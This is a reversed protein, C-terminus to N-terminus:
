VVMKRVNEIKRNKIEIVACGLENPSFGRREAFTVSRPDKSYKAQFSGTNIYWRRDPPIFFENGEGQSLYHQKMDNDSFKLILEQLPPAILLKHSDGIAMVLCDGAQEELLRKLKSIMNTLRQEKRGAHSNIQGYGHALFMRFMFGKSDYLSVVSTYSGYEVNLAKCIDEIPNFNKWLKMEHNGLLITIIKDKIPRLLEIALDRQQAPIPIEKQYTIRKDEINIAEIVDGMVVVRANKDKKICEIVKNVGKEYCAPSGQHIDGILFIKCTSPIEYDILKMEIEGYTMDVILVLVGGRILM